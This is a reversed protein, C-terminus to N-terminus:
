TIRYSKRFEKRPDLQTGNAMIIIQAHRVYVHLGILDILPTKMSALSM